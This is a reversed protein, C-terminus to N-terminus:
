VRLGSRVARARLLGGLVACVALSVGADTWLAGRLGGLTYGRGDLFGMYVIPLNTAAILLSLITAALRNGPGIVAFTIAFAAAFALAQFANEGAIAVAFAAPTRPLLLLGLTFLAGAVGIGLYLPRLPFRRALLPLLLSGCVGAAASGAGALLSVARESAHFDAGIGGLVNTLTFSASPLSFLLLALLVEKRRLVLWLEGFLRRFSQTLPRREPAPAPLRLYILSPLLLVGALACGAARPPLARMLEGGLLMMTGGAGLNAVTFWAGLRADDEKPILSGVWGGVAAQVLSVAIYGVLMAGEVLALNARHAVAWGLCGAGILAFVLAYARRSWRVDLVPALLFVWFGPSLVAATTAAIRGGPVGQAALMQPMSVVAFGAFAGFTANTLGMLWVPPLAQANRMHSEAVTRANPFFRGPAREATAPPVAEREIGVVM